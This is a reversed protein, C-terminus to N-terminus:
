QKSNSTIVLSTEIKVPSGAVAAQRGRECRPQGQRNPRKDFPLRVPSGLVPSYHQPFGEAAAAAGEAAPPRTATETLLPPRNRARVCRTPEKNAALRRTTDFARVARSPGAERIPRM